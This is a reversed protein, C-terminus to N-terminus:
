EVRRLVEGVNMRGYWYIVPIPTFLYLFVVVLIALVGSFDILVPYFLTGGALSAINMQSVGYGSVFGTVVGLLISFLLIYISTAYMFRVVDGSDVGRARLLVMDRFSVKIHQLTLIIITSLAAVIGLISYIHYSYSSIIQFDEGFVMPTALGGGFQGLPFSGLAGVLNRSVEDLDYGEAVDVILVFSKWRISSLNYGLNELASSTTIADFRSPLVHLAGTVPIDIYESGVPVEEEVPVNVPPGLFLRLRDGMSYDFTDVLEKYGEYSIVLGHKLAEVLDDNGYYNWSGGVNIVNILEDADRAVLIYHLPLFSERGNYYVRDVEIVICVAWSKVGDVTSISKGINSVLNDFNSADGYVPFVLDPSNRIRSYDSYFSVARVSYIISFIMLAIMLSSIFAGKSVWRPSRAIYNVLVRRFRSSVFFASLKSLLKVVRESYTIIQIISYIFFLPAFINLFGSVMSYLGVIIFLFIDGEARVLDFVNINFIWEIMKITGLLLMAITAKSIQRDGYDEISEEFKHMAEAPTIESFLHKKRWITLIIIAIVVSAAIISSNIDIVDFYGTSPSIDLTTFVLPVWLPTSLIGLAIAASSILIIFMVLANFLRKSPIGRARLIAIERRYDSVMLDINISLLYWIGIFFPIANIYIGINVFNRIFSYIMLESLLNNSELEISAIGSVYSKVEKNSEELKNVMSQIDINSFFGKSYVVVLRYTIESYNFNSVLKSFLDPHIFIQPGSSREGSEVGFQSFNVYQIGKVEYTGVVTVNFLPSDGGPVGIGVVSGVDVNVQPFGIMVEHRDRLVRGSVSRAVIPLVDIYNPYATYAIYETMDNNYFLSIDIGLLLYLHRDETTANIVFNELQDIRNINVQGMLQYHTEVRSLIRRYFQSSLAQTVINPALLLFMVIVVVVMISITRVLRRNYLKFLKLTFMIQLLCLKMFRSYSNQM